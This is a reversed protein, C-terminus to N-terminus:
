ILEDKEAVKENLKQYKETLGDYNAMLEDGAEIKAEYLEVRNELDILKQM